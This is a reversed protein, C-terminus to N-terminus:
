ALESRTRSSSGVAFAVGRGTLKSAIKACSLGSKSASKLGERTASTAARVCTSYWGPQRHPDVAHLGPSEAADACLLQLATDSNSPRAIPTSACARHSSATGSSRPRGGASIM